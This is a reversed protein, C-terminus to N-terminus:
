TVVPELKDSENLPLGAPAKVRTNFDAWLEQERERAARKGQDLATNWRERITERAEEGSKPTSLLIIGAGIAAGLVAGGVFSFFDKM